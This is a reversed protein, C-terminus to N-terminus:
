GLVLSSAAILQLGLVVAGCVIGWFAMYASSASVMLVDISTMSAVSGCAFIESQSYLRDTLVSLVSIM